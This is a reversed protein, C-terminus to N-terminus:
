ARQSSTTWQPLPPVLVACPIPYMPQLHFLTTLKLKARKIEPVKQFHSKILKLPLRSIIPFDRGRGSIQGRNESRGARLKPVTNIDFHAQFTQYQNHWYLCKWGTYFWFLRGLLRGEGKRCRLETCRIKINEEWRCGPRVHPRKGPYRGVM